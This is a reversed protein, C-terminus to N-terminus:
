AKLVSCFIFFCLFYLASQSKLLSTEHEFVNELLYLWTAPKEFEKAPM